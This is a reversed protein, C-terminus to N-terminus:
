DHRTVSAVGSANELDHHRAIAVVNENAHDDRYVSKAVNEDDSKMKDDHHFTVVVNECDSETEYDHHCKVVVGDDHM